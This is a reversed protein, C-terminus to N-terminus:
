ARPGPGALAASCAQLHNCLWESAEAAAGAPRLLGLPELVSTPRVDVEKVEGADILPRVLNLSVYAIVQEHRLLWGLATPSRTIVTHMRPAHPFASALEDFRERAATGVPLSLWTHDALDKWHLRRRRAAPHDVGCVVALRDDALPLFQWGEPIVPPRRCAVLDVQARAIALLQDDGEAETLVVQVEPHRAGFRPLEHILM